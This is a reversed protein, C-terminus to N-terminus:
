RVLLILQSDSFALPNSQIFFVTGNEPANIESIMEGSGTDIIRAMCMGERVYDGVRVNCDFFGAVSSKVTCIDSETIVSSIFGRHHEFEVINNASMFNLIASM